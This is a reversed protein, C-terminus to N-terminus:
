SSSQDNRRARKAPSRGAPGTSRSGSPSSRLLGVLADVRVGIWAARPAGPGVFRPDDFDDGLVDDAEGFLGFTEYEEDLVNDVNRVPERARRAPVRRSRQAVAYGDLEELLNGEDGRFHAGSAATLDAGFTFDDTIALRLGAKFLQEPILPM